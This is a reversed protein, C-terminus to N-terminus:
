LVCKSALGWRGGLGRYIVDRRGRVVDRKLGVGGRQAIGLGFKFCLFEACHFFILCDKPASRECITRLM